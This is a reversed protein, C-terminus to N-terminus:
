GAAGVSVPRAQLVAGYHARVSDVYATLTREERVLTRAATRLLATEAENEVTAVICREWEEPTASRGGPVGGVLRATKENLWDAHIPDPRAIIAMGDAMAALPLTRCSADPEPLLLVDTQLIPERRSEMEAVTTIRDLLKLRRAARWVGPRGAAAGDLFVLLNEYRRAARQLGELLCKLEAAGSGGRAEALISVAIARSPDIPAHVFDSASVGWPAVGAAVTRPMGARRIGAELEAGIRGSSTVVGAGGPGQAVRRRAHVFADEVLEARWVELVLAAGSEQAVSEGLAWAGRGFVHVVDIHTDTTDLVEGAAALLQRSRSGRWFPSYSDDYRVLASSFANVVEASCRAPVAHLITAGDDALGIELRTLLQHERHAFSADALVM